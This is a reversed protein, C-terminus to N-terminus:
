FLGPWGYRAWAYRPSGSAALLALGGALLVFVGAIHHNLESYAKDQDPPLVPQRHNHGEMHGGPMTLGAMHAQHEPTASGAGDGAMMHDHAQHPEAPTGTGEGVAMSHHDHQSSGDDQARAPLTVSCVILSWLTFASLLVLQNTRM